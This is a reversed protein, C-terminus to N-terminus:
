GGAGDQGVTHRGGAAWERTCETGEAADAQVHVCVNHMLVFGGELVRSGKM